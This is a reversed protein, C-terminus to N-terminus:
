SILFVNSDLNGFGYRIELDNRGCRGFRLFFRGDSLRRYQQCTVVAQWRIHHLHM